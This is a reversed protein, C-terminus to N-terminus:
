TARSHCSSRFSFAPNLEAGVPSVGSASRRHFGSAGLSIGSRSVKDCAEAASTRDSRTSARLSARSSGLSRTKTCCVRPLQGTFNPSLWSFHPNHQRRVAPLLRWRSKRSSRGSGALVLATPRRVSSSRVYANRRRNIVPWTREQQVSVGIIDATPPDMLRSSM